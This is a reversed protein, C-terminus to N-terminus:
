QSASEDSRVWIMVPKFTKTGVFVFMAHMRVVIIIIFMEIFLGNFYHNSTTHLASNLQKDQWGRTDVAVM